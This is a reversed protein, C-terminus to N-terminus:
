KTPGGCALMCSPSADTHTCCGYPNCGGSLQGCRCSGSVCVGNCIQGNCCTLLEAPEQGDPAYLPPDADCPTGADLVPADGVDYAGDLAADPTTADPESPPVGGCGVLMAAAIRSLKALVM